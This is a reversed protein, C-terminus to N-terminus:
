KAKGQNKQAIKLDAEAFEDLLSKHPVHGRCYIPPQRLRSFYKHSGRYTLLSYSAVEIIFIVLSLMWSHGMNMPIIAFFIFSAIPMLMDTPIFGFLLPDQNLVKNVKRYQRNM